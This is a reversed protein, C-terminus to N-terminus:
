LISNLEALNENLDFEGGYKAIILAFKEAIKIVHPVRVANYWNPYLYTTWYTLKVLLEPFNMNGYPVYFYTPTASGQNVKQPQLYFEFRKKNTIQDFIFLGNEPNKYDGDSNKNNNKNKKVYNKEFFKVSTYTNVIVYYYNIKLEKCVNEISKVEMEVFSLQNHAIGQRYIIINKPNENNNNKRYKNVAETIFTSIKRYIESAYHEDKAITEKKFYFQSFYQDRTSVMAIGTNGTQWIHSSDMGIFMLKRESINKDINLIYSYGGLKNNIQLLIKSYYSYPGHKSNMNKKLSELKIVQSIYGKTSLSHKKLPSYLNDEKNSIFFMVFIINKRKNMEDEVTKIWNSPNSNNMPIWNDDNNKFKLGYKKSCNKFGELLNYSQSEAKKTYLCLWNDTYLKDNYVPIISNIDQITLKQKQNDKNRFTPQQIYYPHVKINEKSLKVIEIGYEERKKDTTNCEDSNIVNKNNEDNNDNNNTPERKTTDHFLDLCKEIQEIKDDPKLRTYEALERMFTYNKTDEESVGALICLEPVYYKNKTSIIMPQKPDKIKINMIEEYFKQYTYTKHEYNRTTNEPTKDTSFEKIVQHKSCDKPIFKRNILIEKGENKLVEYVSLDGLIKNKIGILLCLGFDTQQVSLKYGDHIYYTTETDKAKVKEKKNELYLNDRDFHLNPNISLIERIIMYIVMEEVETFNFKKGIEIASHHTSKGIQIEYEIKGNQIISIKFNNITNIEKTAFITNGSKYYYGYKQFLQSSARKLIKNIINEEHVEPTITIPYQFIHIEKHFKILYANVYLDPDSTQEILSNQLMKQKNWSIGNLASLNEM